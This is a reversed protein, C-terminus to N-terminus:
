GHADVAYFYSLVVYKCLTQLGYQVDLHQQQRRKMVSHQSFSRM